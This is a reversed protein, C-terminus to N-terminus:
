TETMLLSTSINLEPYVMESTAEHVASVVLEDDM